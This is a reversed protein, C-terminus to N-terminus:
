LLGGDDEDKWPLVMERVRYNLFDHPRVFSECFEVPFLWAKGQDDYKRLQPVVRYVEQAKIAWFKGQMTEGRFDRMTDFVPGYGEVRFEKNLLSFGRIKSHPDM